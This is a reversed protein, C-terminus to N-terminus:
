PQTATLSYSQGVVFYEKEDETLPVVCHKDSNEKLFIGYPGAIEVLKWLGLSHGHPPPGAM